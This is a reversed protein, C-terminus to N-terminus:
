ELRGKGTFAVEQEDDEAFASDLLVARPVLIRTRRKDELILVAAGRDEYARAACDGGLVLYGDTRLLGPHQGHLMEQTVTLRYQAPCETGDSLVVVGRGQATEVTKRAM